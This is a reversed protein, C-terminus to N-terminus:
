DHLLLFCHCPLVLRETQRIKVFFDLFILKVLKSNECAESLESHESSDSNECTPPTYGHEFVDKNIM